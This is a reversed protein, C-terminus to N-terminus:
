PSDHLLTSVSIRLNPDFLTHAQTDEYNGNESGACLLLGRFYMLTCSCFERDCISVGKFKAAMRKRAEKVDDPDM